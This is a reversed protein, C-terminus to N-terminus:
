HTLRKKKWGVLAMGGLFTLSAGGSLMWLAINSDDGTSPAKPNGGGNGGGNDGGAGGNNDGDGGDGGDALPPDDDGPILDEGDEGGDGGPEDTNDPTDPTIPTGPTNPTDPTPTIDPVIDGPNGGDPAESALVIYGAGSYIITLRQGTVTSNLKNLTENPFLNYIAPNAYGNPATIAVEIASSDAVVNGSEDLFYIDFPLFEEAKGDMMSQFWNWAQTDSQPVPMVVLTLNDALSGHVAVTVGSDTTISAGGSDVQCTYCGELSGAYQAVIDGAANGPVGSVASASASAAFALTLCFLLILATIITLNKRV